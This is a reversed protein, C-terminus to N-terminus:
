VWGERVDSSKRQQLPSLKENVCQKEINFVARGSELLHSVCPGLSGSLSLFVLLIVHSHSSLLVVLSLFSVSVVVFFLRFLSALSTAFRQKSPPLPDAVSIQAQM